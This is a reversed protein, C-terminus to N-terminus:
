TTARSGIVKRIVELALGDLLYTTPSFYSPLVFEGDFVTGFLSLSGAADVERSGAVVSDEILQAIPRGTSRFREYRREFISLLWDFDRLDTQAEDKYREFAVYLRHLFMGPTGGVMEALRQLADTTLFSQPLDPRGMSQFRKRYLDLLESISLGGDLSVLELFDRQAFHYWTRATVLVDVAPASCLDVLAKALAPAQNASPGCPDAILDVDDAFVLVHELLELRLLVEVIAACIATLDRITPAHFTFTTGESQRLNAQLQAALKCLFPTAVDIGINLGRQLDKNWNLNIAQPKAPGSFIKVQEFLAHSSRILAEQGQNPRFTRSNVLNRYVDYLSSFIDQIVREADWSGRAYVKIQLHKSDEPLDLLIRRALHSKGMRSEGHIVWPRKGSTKTGSLDRHKMLISTGRALESDRGIFLSRVLAPTEPPDPHLLLPDYGYKQTM